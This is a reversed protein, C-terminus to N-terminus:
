RIKPLVQHKRMAGVAVNEIEVTRLCGSKVVTVKKKLVGCVHLQKKSPQSFFPRPVLKHSWMDATTFILVVINGTWLIISQVVYTM